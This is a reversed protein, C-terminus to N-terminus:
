CGKKRKKSALMKESLLAARDPSIAGLVKGAIRSNMRSLIAIANMTNMKALRRAAEDPQMSEYMKVIVKIDPKNGRKKQEELQRRVEERLISYQDISKKVAEQLMKLREEEEKLEKEKKSLQAEKKKIDKVLEVLRSGKTDTELSSVPSTDSSAASFKVMAPMFSIGKITLILSLITILLIKRM